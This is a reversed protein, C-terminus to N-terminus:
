IPASLGRRMTTGRSGTRAAAGGRDDALWRAPAAFFYPSQGWGSWFGAGFDAAPDEVMWTDGDEGVVCGCECDCWQCIQFTGQAGEKEVPTVQEYAVVILCVRRRALVCRKMRPRPGSGGQGM